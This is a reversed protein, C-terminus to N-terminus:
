SRASLILYTNGHKERRIIKEFEMENLIEKLENKSVNFKDNLDKQLLDGSLSMNSIERVVDCFIYTAHDLNEKWRKLDSYHNGITHPEETEFKQHFYEQGGEKSSCFAKLEDYVEFIKSYCAVKGSFDPIEYGLHDLDMMKKVYDFIVAQNERYFDEATKPKKFKDFLGM